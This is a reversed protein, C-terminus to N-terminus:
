TKSYFDLAFLNVENSIDVCDKGYRERIFDIVEQSEMM